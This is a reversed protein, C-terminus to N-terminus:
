ASSAKFTGKDDGDSMCAEAEEECEEENDAGEAEEEDRKREKM